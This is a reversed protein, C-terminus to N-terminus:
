QDQLFHRDWSTYSPLSHNGEYDQNAKYSRNWKDHSENIAVGQGQIYITIQGFITRRLGHEQVGGIDRPCADHTLVVLGDVILHTRDYVTCCSLFRNCLEVSHLHFITWSTQAPTEAAGRAGMAQGGM